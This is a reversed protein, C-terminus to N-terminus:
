RAVEKFVRRLGGAKIKVYGPPVPVGAAEFIEKSINVARRGVEAQLRQEAAPAGPASAGGRQESAPAPAAATPSRRRAVTAWSGDEPPQTAPLHAGKDAEAM